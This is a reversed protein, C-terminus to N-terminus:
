PIHDMIGQVQSWLSDHCLDRGRIYAHLRHVNNSIYNLNVFLFKVYHGCVFQYLMLIFSICVGNGITGILSFDIM